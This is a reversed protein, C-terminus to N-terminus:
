IVELETKDRIDERNIKLMTIGAPHWRKLLIEGEVQNVVIHQIEDNLECIDAGEVLPQPYQVGQIEMIKFSTDPVPLLEIWGGPQAEAGFLAFYLPTGASTYYQKKFILERPTLEELPVGDYTLTRISILDVFENDREAHPVRYQSVTAESECRSLCQLCRTRRAIKRRAANIEGRLYEWGLSENKLEYRIKGIYDNLNM